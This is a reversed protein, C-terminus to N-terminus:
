YSLKGTVSAGAALAPTFLSSRLNQEQIVIKPFLAWFRQKDGNM